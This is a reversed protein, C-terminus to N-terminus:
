CSSASRGPRACARAHELLERALLELDDFDVAGASASSRSTPAASGSSCSTWCRVAAREDVDADAHSARGARAPLRPRRQGRSRLEAYVGEIMARVRDAGYAALLDVAEGARRRPVRAARARVRARAARGALGEDLIAFDPDLGAVLPHARLLRACFGHFTSM